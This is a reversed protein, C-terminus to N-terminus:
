LDEQRSEYSFVPKWDSDLLRAPAKPEATLEEFQPRFDPYSQVWKFDAKQNLIGVPAVFVAVRQRDTKFTLRITDHAFRAVSDYLSYAGNKSQEGLHSMLVWGSAGALVLSLLSIALWVTPSALHILRYAITNQRMMVDVCRTESEQLFLPIFARIIMGHSLAGWQPAETARLVLLKSPVTGRAVTGGKYGM